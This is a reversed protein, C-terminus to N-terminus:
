RFNRPTSIGFCCSVGVSDCNRDKVLLLLNKVLRGLIEELGIFDKQCGLV